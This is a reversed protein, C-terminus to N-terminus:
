KKARSPDKFNPITAFEINYLEGGVREVRRLYINQIPDRTEPDISIPGRPSVWAMGKMAAVVKEGAADGGTKKLAEYILHMSDYAAVATLNPRANNNAKRFAAVFAKNEPSDHAASYHHSTIMGLAADDMQGIIDDETVSGEGLLRIGSRNLGREVYQKILTAGIGAPVFVFLADPKADAVRQLYPAFDRNALPVRISELVQGGGAKFRTVYNTEIDVGPAYDSVLTVVRKVNNQLSWDAIPATTQATTFSARVIFPSRESVIPTAALMVVQAVKAQTAIPAVALAIPTLGFGALIHVGENVVMEQAIRKAVDANGTDDKIVLDVTKGAVSAGKEAMFLKAGAAMMRGTSTFPGTMPAILGIKVTGSALAPRPLVAAASLALATRRTIFTRSM